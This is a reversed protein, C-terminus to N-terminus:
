RPRPPMMAIPDASGPEDTEDFILAKMAEEFVPRVLIDRKAEADEDTNWEATRRGSIPSEVSFVWRGGPKLLVSIKREGSKPKGVYLTFSADDEGLALSLHVAIESETRMAQAQLLYKQAVDQVRRKRDQLDQRKLIAAAEKKRQAQEKERRLEDALKKLDRGM